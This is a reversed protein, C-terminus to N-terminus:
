TQESDGLRAMGLNTLEGSSAGRSTKEYYFKSKRSFRRDNFDKRFFSRCTIKKGSRIPYAQSGSGGVISSSSEHAVRNKKEGSAVRSGIPYNVSFYKRESASRQTRPKWCLGSDILWRGRLRQSRSTLLALVTEKKTARAWCNNRAVIFLFAVVTLHQKPEIQLRDRDRHSRTHLVLSGCVHSM